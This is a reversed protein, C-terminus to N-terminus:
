SCRRDGITAHNPAGLGGGPCRFRPPVSPTRESCTLQPPPVVETEDAKRHVHRLMDRWHRRKGARLVADRWSRKTLPPTPVIRKASRKSAAKLSTNKELPIQDSRSPRLLALIGYSYRHGSLRM